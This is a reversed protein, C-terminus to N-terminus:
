SAFRDFADAFFRANVAHRWTAGRVIGVGRDPLLSLPAVVRDLWDKGHRPDAEAHEAYFPRADAPADLRDLARLVARCRPGAQLELLGFAGIAEPQLYRNTALLGGLCKRELASAPLDELPVAEMAVARALRDHLVTHVEDADGRGMEDWYNAALAVKPEGALGVQTMAVLDDFDADPGGELTLFDVLEPWTATDALWRYVDPVLDIAAIRRMATVPDGPDVATEHERRSLREILLGELHWKVHNVAPHNQMRARPGLRELPAMWLDYIALLARLQDREDGPDRLPVSGDDGPSGDLLHEVWTTMPWGDGTREPASTALAGIPDASGALDYTLVRPNSTITM